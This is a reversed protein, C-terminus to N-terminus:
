LARKGDKYLVYLGYVEPAIEMLANILRGTIKMIIHEDRDKGNDPVFAQIFANPINGSIM